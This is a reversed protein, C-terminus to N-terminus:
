ASFEVWAGSDFPVSHGALKPRQAIAWEYDEVARYVVDEASDCGLIASALRLADQSHGEPFVRGTSEIASLALPSGDPAFTGHRSVFAYLDGTVIGSPSEFKAGTLWGFRYNLERRAIETMQTETAMLVAVPSRVGPSPHITSPLAGYLTLHPSFTVDFDLVEGAIVPMISDHGALGQLKGGIGEISVNAGYSLLPFRAPEPSGGDILRVIDEVEGARSVGHGDVVRAELAPGPGPEVLPFVREPTALFSFGLREYPYSFARHIRADRMSEANLLRAEAVLYAHFEDPALALRGAVSPDTLRPRVPEVGSV